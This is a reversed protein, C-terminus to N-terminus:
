ETVGDDQAVRDGRELHCGLIRTYLAQDGPQAAALGSQGSDLFQAVGNAAKACAALRGQGKGLGEAFAPVASQVVVQGAAELRNPQLRGTVEIQGASRNLRGEQAFDQVVDAHQRSEVLALVELAGHGRQRRQALPSLVIEHLSPEVGITEYPSQSIGDFALAGFDLHIPQALLDGIQGTSLLLPNGLLQM